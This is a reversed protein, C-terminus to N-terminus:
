DKAKCLFHTLRQHTQICFKIGEAKVADCFSIKKQGHTFKPKVKLYNNQDDVSLGKDVMELLSLRKYEHFKEKEVNSTHQNDIHFRWEQKWM